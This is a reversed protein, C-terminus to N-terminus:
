SNSTRNNNRRIEVYSFLLCVSLIFLSKLLVRHTDPFIGNYADIIIHLDYILLIICFIFLNKFFTKYYIRSDM